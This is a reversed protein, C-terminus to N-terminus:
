SRPTTQIEADDEQSFPSDPRCQLLEAPRMDRPKRCGPQRSVAHKAVAGNKSSAATVLRITSHTRFTCLPLLTHMIALLFSGFPRHAPMSAPLSWLSSWCSMVRPDPM